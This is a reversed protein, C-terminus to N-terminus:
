SLPVLTVSVALAALPEVKPPQLPHSVGEPVVQVTVMFAAFDIVAMKLGAVWRKVSVTLRAPVPLPLTLETSPDIM